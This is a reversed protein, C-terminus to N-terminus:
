ALREGSRRQDHDLEAFRRQGCFGGRADAGAVQEGNVLPREFAGAREIEARGLRAGIVDQPVVVVEDGRRAKVGAGDGLELRRLEIEEDGEMRDMIKALRVGAGPEAAAAVRRRRPRKARQTGSGLHRAAHAQDPAGEDFAIAPEVLAEAAPAPLVIGPPVLGGQEATRADAALGGLGQKMEVMAVRAAEGAGRRLAGVRMVAAVQGQEGLVLPEGGALGIELAKGTGCPGRRRSHAPRLWQMDRQEDIPLAQGSHIRRQRSAITRCPPSTRRSSRVANSASRVSSRSM